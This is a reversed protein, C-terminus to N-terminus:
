GTFVSLVKKRMKSVNVERELFPATQILNFRVSPWLLTDDKVKAKNLFQTLIQLIVISELNVQKALYAKVAQPTRQDPTGLLLDLNPEISKLKKLDNQFLYSISELRGVFKRYVSMDFDGIWFNEGFIM